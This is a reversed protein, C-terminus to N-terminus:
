LRVKYGDEPKVWIYPVEVAPKGYISLRAILVDGRSIFYTCSEHGFENRFLEILKKDIVSKQANTAPRGSVVYRAAHIDQPRMTNCLGNSKILVPSSTRMTVIPNNSVAVTESYVIKGGPGIEYSDLSRCTKATTNPAACQLKGELAPALSSPLTAALAPPAIAFAAVAIGFSRM